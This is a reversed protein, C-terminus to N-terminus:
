IKGGISHIWQARLNNHEIVLRGFKDTLSDTSRTNKIIDVTTQKFKNDTEAQRTKLDVIDTKIETMSNDFKMEFDHFRTFYNLSGCPHKNKVLM